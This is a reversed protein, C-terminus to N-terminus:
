GPVYRRRGIADRTMFRPIWVPQRGLKVDVHRDRAIAGTAVVARRRGALRTTM